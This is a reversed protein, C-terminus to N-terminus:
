PRARRADAPRSADTRLKGLGPVSVGFGRRSHGDATEDDIIPPQDGHLARRVHITAASEVSGEEDAEGSGKSRRSDRRPPFRRPSRDSRPSERGASPSLWPETDARRAHRLGDQNGMAVDVVRRARLRASSARRSSCSSRSSCTGTRRQLQASSATTAPWGTTWQSSATACWADPAEGWRCPGATAAALEGTRPSTPAPDENSSRPRDSSAMRSSGPLAGITRPTRRPSADPREIQRSSASSRM